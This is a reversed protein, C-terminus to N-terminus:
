DDEIEDPEGRSELTQEVADDDEIEYIDDQSESPEFAGDDVKYQRNELYTNRVFVYFDIADEREARVDELIYARRNLRDVAGATM